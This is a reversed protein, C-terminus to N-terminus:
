PADIIQVEVVATAICDFSVIYARHRVKLHECADHVGQAGSSRVGVRPPVRRWHAVYRFGCAIGFAEGRAVHRTFEDDFRTHDTTRTPDRITDHESIVPLRMDSSPFRKSSLHTLDVSVGSAVSNVHGLTEFM